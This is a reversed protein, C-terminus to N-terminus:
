RRRPSRSRDRGRSSGGGGGGGGSKDFKAPVRFRGGNRKVSQSFDVHIRRDDILVNDMKLYAAECAQPTQFEIFAYNLSEGTKSDRLVECSVITGFRSFIIELDEDTTVPNLKCVFLVNDPPAEDADDIDGAVTLFVARSHAEKAAQEERLEEETKEAPTKLMSLTKSVITSQLRRRVLRVNLYVYVLLTM